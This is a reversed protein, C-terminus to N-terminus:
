NVTATTKNQFPVASGSHGNWSWGFPALVCSRDNVPVPITSHVPRRTRSLMSRQGGYNWWSKKEKCEGTRRRFATQGRRGGGAGGSSRSSSSSNHKGPTPRCHISNFAGHLLYGVSDGFHDSPCSPGVAQLQLLLVELSPLHTASRTFSAAEAEKTPNHNNNLHRYTTTTERFKSCM